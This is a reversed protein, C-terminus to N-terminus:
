ATGFYARELAPDNRIAAAAGTYVIRGSEIVYARDAVALALGANQDVLLVTVGDDRVRALVEFLDNILAPALGLSPEDLLLVRPRAILGRAIALMQQEGGSLLGARSDRRRALAPFRQLMAEIESPAVDRRAYAGLSINDVVSLETFVQRGEPVLVLGAAALEHAPREIVDHGGFLIQGAVPRLLGAIARMLTSKGAGNPGLVAVLEGSNVELSVPNLVTTTGYGAVLNQVMLVGDRNARWGPARPRAGLRSQGLYAEIVAQDNRVKEPVGQAICQGADLVVIHDSINMVLGMDHEILVLAIGTQAIRHLLGSLSETDQAGLGAAPEDLLLVEPKLALARAIEVLRKDIHPLTGAERYPDGGYGVFDLLAQAERAADSDGEIGLAALPSGLTGHRMAILLNELVSLKAFLQTTQYTRAIGARAIVHAPAGALETDGLKISGGAPRYFGGILNLVTTKGAGNPGIVSTIKGPVATLALGNVARVGGFAIRLDAVALRRAIRQVPVAGAQASPPRPAKRELRRAILGAIGGPAMWLVILMLAGFFLVRYEALGSLLEPIVVVVVAGILPGYLREAGGITVTLVFLISQFFSFSSPSVFSTLPSFFAGALGAFVASLTFAVTRVVLPNIANSSAAIESDRVARMALGWASAALRRYFAFSLAAVSIVAFALERDSFPHGFVSPPPINMLGNAGGTLGSWEVAGYEVIFGFAITVMALYPGSVRLAIMGVAAGIAATLLIAVLLAPWFSWGTSTTLIATTYSGLAYFGVHGFSMQGSLGLLINLGVATIATLGATTLLYLHYNNATAAYVLAAVALLPLLSARNM